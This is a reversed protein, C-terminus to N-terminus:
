VATRNSDVRQMARQRGGIGVSRLKELRKISRTIDAPSHSALGKIMERLAIEWEAFDSKRDFLAVFGSRDLATYPAVTM